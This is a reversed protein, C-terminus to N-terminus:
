YVGQICRVVWSVEERSVAAAMPGRRDDGEEASADDPRWLGVGIFKGPWEVEDSHRM